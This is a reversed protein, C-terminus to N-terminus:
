KKAVVIMDTYCFSPYTFEPLLKRAKAILSVTMRVIAPVRSWNLVGIDLPRFYEARVITMGALNHAKKLDRLDMELYGSCGSGSLWKDLKGWMGKLHPVTTILIGDKKLYTKCIQLVSTPDTFHEILGRSYVVDFKGQLVCVWRMDGLMLEGKVGAKQLNCFARNLQPISYDIGYVQVGYKRAFYPLFYSGGCGLELVKDGRKMIGHFVRATEIDGYNWSLDPYHGGGKVNDWYKVDTLLDSM